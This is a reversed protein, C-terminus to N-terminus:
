KLDLDYIADLTKQTLHYDKIIRFKSIRMLRYYGLWLVIINWFIVIVDNVVGIYSLIILDYITWLINSIISCINASKSDRSTGFSDIVSGLVPLIAFWHDITLLGILIYSVLSIWFILRDKDTKYYLVTKVLEILCILIGADAGLLLYSLFDFVCVGIQIYLLEDIDEKTYSYLLLLWSIIGLGQAIVFVTTINEM